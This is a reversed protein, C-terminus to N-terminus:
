KLGSVMVEENLNLIGGRCVGAKQRNAEEKKEREMKKGREERRKKKGERGEGGWLKNVLCM